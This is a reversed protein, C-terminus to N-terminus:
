AMRFDAAMQYSIKEDLHSIQKLVSVSACSIGWDLSCSAVLVCYQVFELSKPGEQWGSMGLSRTM